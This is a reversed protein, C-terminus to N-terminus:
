NNARPAEYVKIFEDVPTRAIAEGDLLMKDAFAAKDEESMLGAAGIIANMMTM